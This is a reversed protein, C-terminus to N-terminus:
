DSYQAVFIIHSKFLFFTLFHAADLEGPKPEVLVANGL